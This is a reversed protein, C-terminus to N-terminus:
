NSREMVFTGGGKNNLRLVRRWGAAQHAKAQAERAKKDEASVAKKM